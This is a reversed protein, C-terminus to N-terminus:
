VHVVYSAPINSLCEEMASEVDFRRSIGADSGDETKRATGESSTKNFIRMAVGCRAEM